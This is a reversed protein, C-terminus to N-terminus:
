ASSPMRSKSAHSSNLRTSKRDGYITTVISSTISFVDARTAGYALCIRRITDEVRGVEAGCCLLQEGITMAYYLYQEAEERTM